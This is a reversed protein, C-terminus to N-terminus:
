TIILEGDLEIEIAGLPEIELEAAVMYSGSPISILTTISRSGIFGNAQIAGSDQILTGPSNEITTGTTDAWRAIARVDTPPLGTVVGTQPANVLDLAGTIPNFKFPM